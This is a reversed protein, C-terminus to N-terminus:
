AAQRGYEYYGYARQGFISRIEPPTATKLYESLYLNYGSMHLGKARNNYVDKEADSFGQWNKVGQQVMLRRTLQNDTKVDKQRRQYRAKHRTKRESFTLYKGISGQASASLLPLKVNAM